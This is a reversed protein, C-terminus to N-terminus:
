DRNTFARILAEVLKRISEHLEHQKLNPKRRIRKLEDVAYEVEQKKEPEVSGRVQAGELLSICAKLDKQKRM